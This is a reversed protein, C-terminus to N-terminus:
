SRERESISQLLSRATPTETPAAFRQVMTRLEHFTAFAHELVLVNAGFQRVAAAVSEARTGQVARIGRIKNALVMAGAAHPLIAVGAAIRGAQIAECM